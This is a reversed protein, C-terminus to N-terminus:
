SRAGLPRQPAADELRVRADALVAGTASVIVPNCDLEAIAPHDEALAGIRLLVDELAAVDCPPAGRYGTLLPFTRLGRLMDAADAASLPSLRVTVDKLLEMNTGGAGCAVVPGFRRDNVVGVLMEVGPTAMRQVLFGDPPQGIARYVRETMREAAHMVSQEGSLHLEVGGVDSKHVVGRAIVKLAVEGGLQAAAAAAEQPTGAVRQELTPV